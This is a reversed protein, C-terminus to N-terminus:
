SPQDTGPLSLSIRYSNFDIRMQDKVLTDKKTLRTTPKKRPNIYAIISGIRTAPM